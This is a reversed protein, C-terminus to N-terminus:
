KSPQLIELYKDICGDLSFQKLWDKTPLSYKQYQIVEIISAALADIDGVPTLKGYKGGNLIERPGSKCDTAIVPTGITMAEILSNPMGEYMSSLVFVSARAMYAYPNKVFGPMSVNDELNLEQILAKIRPKEEGDGLIVLRARYKKSVIYFARILTPYDKVKTLRGAAVIVPIEEVSFWPDDIPAQAKKLLDSKEVANYIVQVQKSSIGCCNILDNAVGKSPAVIGDARPYFWQILRLWFYRKIISADNLRHSITTVERVILRISEGALRKAIIAIISVHTMTSLMANPKERRLYHVLAPLSTMVRRANLNVIRVAPIVDSLYPGEAQALVLDVQLGRGAFGHALNVMIREAGGGRLSPLFLAIRKLKRYGM